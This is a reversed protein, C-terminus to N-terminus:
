MLKSTNGGERSNYPIVAITLLYLEEYGTLTGAL